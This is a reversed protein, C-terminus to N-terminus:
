PIAAPSLFYVLKHFFIAANEGNDDNFPIKEHQPVSFQSGRLLLGRSSNPTDATVDSSYPIQFKSDQRNHAKKGRM